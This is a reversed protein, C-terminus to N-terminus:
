GRRLQDAYDDLVGLIGAHQWVRNRRMGTREELVGAAALQQLARQATVENLGVHSVLFRATVIPQSVLRPLVRWAAAQPRLQSLKEESIALQRALDDVLNMGSRAAYRSARTFSEVIPRADGERFATLAEFYTETERLLGASVPATTHRLTGKNHLLAHVLARGTRGNGNAFPHITEFQAHGVAAQVLVPLDDRRLFEVLNEMAGPVLDPQPAVHGAGRPSAASTGVWVLESRYRGAHSAWGPHRSLLEMHMDLISQEDLQEALRLAAEMARVNAVVLRANESQAEDLEALALQRAGATIQEIQSSSASETRLLVSSMPGLAPSQAGLTAAAHSDFESLAQAAEEIDATLDSPLSPAYEAISAPVASRYPGSGRTREARSYPGDPNVTWLHQTWQVPPVPLPTSVDSTRKPDSVM